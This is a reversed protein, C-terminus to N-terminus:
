PSKLQGLISSPLGETELSPLTEQTPTNSKSKSASNSLDSWNDSEMHGRNKKKKLLNKMGILLEEALHLPLLVQTMSRQRQMKKTSRRAEKLEEETHGWQHSLLNRRKYKNMYFNSKDRENSRELEFEDLKKEYKKSYSWDLSLPPGSRCSPHDGVTRDYERVDVSHFSVSNRRMKNSSCSGSHRSSSSDIGAASDANSARANDGSESKMFESPSSSPSLRPTSDDLDLGIDQQSSYSTQSMDFSAVRCRNRRNDSCQSKNSSSADLHNFAVFSSKRTMRGSSGDGGKTSSLDFTSYSSTKKLISKSPVRHLSNNMYDGRIAPPPLMWNGVGGDGDEVDDDDVGGEELALIRIAAATADNSSPPHPPPPPSPSLEAGSIDGLLWKELDLDEDETILIPKISSETDM